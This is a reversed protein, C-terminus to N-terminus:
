FGLFLKFKMINLAYDVDKFFDVIITILLIDKFKM